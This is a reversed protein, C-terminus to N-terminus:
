KAIKKKKKNYRISISIKSYKANLEDEQESIKARLADLDAEQHKLKMKVCDGEKYAAQLEAHLGLFSIIFNIFILTQM